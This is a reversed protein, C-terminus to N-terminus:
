AIERLFKRDGRITKYSKPYQQITQHVFVFLQTKPAKHHLVDGVFYITTRLEYHQLHGRFHEHEDPRGLLAGINAHM